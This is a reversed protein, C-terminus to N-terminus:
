FQKFDDFTKEKKTVDFVKSERARSMEVGSRATETDMDAKALALELQTNDQELEKIRAKLKKAVLNEIIPNKVSGQVVVINEEVGPMVKPCMIPIINDEQISEPYTVSGTITNFRRFRIRKFGPQTDNKISLVTGFIGRDLDALMPEKKTM